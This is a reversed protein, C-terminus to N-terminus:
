ASYRCEIEKEAGTYSLFGIRIGDNELSANVFSFFGRKDLLPHMEPAIIYGRVIQTNCLKSEFGESSEKKSKEDPGSKCFRFAKKQINRIVSSYFLIESLFGVKPGASFKKLELPYAIPGDIACLDLASKGHSFLATKKQPPDSWFLGVPIQRELSSSSPLRLASELLTKGHTGALFRELEHETCGDEIEEDSGDRGFTRCNLVLGDSGGKYEDLKRNWMNVANQCEPAVSVWEGCWDLLNSVRYLFRNYHRGRTTPEQESEEPPANWRLVVRCDEGLWYRIGLAWGDFGGDDTQMNSCVCDASLDMNVTGDGSEQFTIKSPLKVKRGADAASTIVCNLRQLFRDNM